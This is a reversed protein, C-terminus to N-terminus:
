SLLWPLEHWHQFLVKWITQLFPVQSLTTHLEWHRVVPIGLWAKAWWSVPHNGDDSPKKPKRTLNEWPSMKSSYNSSRNTFSLWRRPHRPGPDSSYKDGYLPKYWTKWWTAMSDAKSTKQSASKSLSEMQEWLVFDAVHLLHMRRTSEQEWGCVVRTFVEKIFDAARQGRRWWHWYVIPGYNVLDREREKKKKGRVYKLRHFKIVTKLMESYTVSSCFYDFGTVTFRRSKVCLWAHWENKNFHGWSIFGFLGHLLMSDLPPFLLIYRGLTLLEM